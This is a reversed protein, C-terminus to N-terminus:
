KPAPLRGKLLDSARALHGEISRQGLGSVGPYTRVVYDILQANSTFTVKAPTGADRVLLRRMVAILLLGSTALDDQTTPRREIQGDAIAAFDPREHPPWGSAVWVSDPDEVGYPERGNAQEVARALADLVTQMGADKNTLKKFRDFRDWAYVGHKEIATALTAISVGRARLAGLSEYVPYERDEAKVESDAM